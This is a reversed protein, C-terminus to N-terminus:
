RNEIEEISLVADVTEGVLCNGTKDCTWIPYTACKSVRGEYEPAIPLDSSIREWQEEAYRQLEYANAVDPIRPYDRIIERLKYVDECDWNEIREIWSDVDKIYQADDKM